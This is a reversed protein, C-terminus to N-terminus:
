CFLLDVHQSFLISNQGFDCILHEIICSVLVIEWNACNSQFVNSALADCSQDKMVFLVQAMNMKFINLLKMTKIVNSINTMLLNKRIQNHEIM